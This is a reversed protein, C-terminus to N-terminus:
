AIPVSITIASPAHATGDQAVPTVTMVYPSGAGPLAEGGNAAAQFHFVGGAAVTSQVTGDGVDTCGDVAAIAVAANDKDVLSVILSNKNSAVDGLEFNEEGPLRGAAEGAAGATAAAALDIEAAVDVQIDGPTADEAATVASLDKRAESINFAKTVLPADETGGTIEATVTHSGAALLLVADNGDVAPNASPFTYRDAGASAGGDVCAIDADIVETDVQYAMVENTTKFDAGIARSTISITRNGRDKVTVRDIVNDIRSDSLIDDDTGDVKDLFDFMKRGFKKVKHIYRRKKGM